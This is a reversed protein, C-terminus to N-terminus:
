DFKKGCGVCTFVTTPLNIARQCGCDLINTGDKYYLQGNEVRDVTSLVDKKEEDTLSDFHTFTKRIEEEINVNNSEEKKRERGRSATKEEQKEPTSAPPSEPQSVPHHTTNADSEANKREEQEKKVLEELEEFFHTGLDIDAQKFRKEFNKKLKYYSTPQFKKDTLNYLTYAKEEDTLEGDVGLQKSKASIKDERIDRISYGGASVDRKEVIIDLDWTGRFEVVADFISNYVTIPIGYQPYQIEVEEGNDNKFKFPNTKSTLIKSHKNAKCWDDMRDIVNMLVRNAPYFQTPYVKPSANDRKNEEVWQLTKTGAYTFVREGKEIKNGKEDLQGKRSNDWRFEQAKRMLRYLIWDQDPKLNLSDSDPEIPWVIDVHKNGSDNVIQSWLITRPDYISGGFGVPKGIIRFVCEENSPFGMWQYQEYDVPNYDKQESKKREAEEKAKARNALAEKWMDNSM